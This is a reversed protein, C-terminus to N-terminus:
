AGAADGMDADTCGVDSNGDPPHATVTTARRAATLAGTEGFSDGPTLWGDQGDLVPAGKRSTVRLRGSRLVFMHLSAQGVRYVTSGVAFRTPGLGCLRALRAVFYTNVAGDASAGVDGETGMAAGGGAGPTSLTHRHSPTAMLNRRSRQLAMRQAAARAWECHVKKVPSM